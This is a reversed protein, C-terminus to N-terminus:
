CAVPQRPAVRRVQAIASAARSDTSEVSACGARAEAAYVRRQGRASAARRAVRASRDVAQGRAASRGDRVVM